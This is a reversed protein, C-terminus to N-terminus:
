QDFSPNSLDPVGADTPMCCGLFLLVTMSVASDQFIDLKTWIWWYPDMCKCGMSGM